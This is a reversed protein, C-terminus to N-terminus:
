LIVAGANYKAHSRVINTIERMTYVNNSYIAYHNYISYNVKPTYISKVYYVIKIKSRMGKFGFCYPGPGYKHGM